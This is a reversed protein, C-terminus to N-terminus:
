ISQSQIRTRGHATTTPLDCIEWSMKTVQLIPVILGGLTMRSVLYILESMLPSILM